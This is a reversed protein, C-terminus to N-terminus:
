RAGDGEGNETESKMRRRSEPATNTESLVGLICVCGVWCLM